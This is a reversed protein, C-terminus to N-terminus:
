KQYAFLILFYTPKIFTRKVCCSPNVNFTKLTSKFAKKKRNVMVVNKKHNGNYYM